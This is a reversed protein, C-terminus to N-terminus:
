RAKAVDDRLYVPLAESPTVWAGRVFAREALAVVARASPVKQPEYPIACYERLIEAYHDFGSGVGVYAGHPRTLSSPPGLREPGVAEVLGGESRRFFGYYIEDRRADIAALIETGSSEQALAALSSIPIVPLGKAYALGQAVAAAVRLGTFSGPGRGFAIAEMTGLETQAEALVVRLLDLVGEARAAPDQIFRAFVRGGVQVAVSAVPTATEIALINM